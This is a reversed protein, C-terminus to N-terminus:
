LYDGLFSAGTSQKYERLSVQAL